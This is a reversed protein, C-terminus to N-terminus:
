RLVRVELQDLTAHTLCDAKDVFAVRVVSPLGKHSFTHLIKATRNRHPGSVVRVVRNDEVPKYSARVSPALIEVAGRKVSTIVLPDRPAVFPLITREKEQRWQEFSSM